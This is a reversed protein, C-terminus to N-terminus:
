LASCMRFSATRKLLLNRNMWRRRCHTSRCRIATLARRCRCNSYTALLEDAERFIAQAWQRGALSTTSCM